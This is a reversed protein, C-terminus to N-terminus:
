KSTDPLKTTQGNNYAKLRADMIEQYGASLYEGKYKEYLADFEDASCKVLKAFYEQYLSLLTASYESEEEISVAFIPDSYAMGKEAVGKQGYYNDILQQTFDQPLGQPSIAKIADEITNGVKKSARVVCTMDINCNHNMMMENGTGELNIQQAIGNADYNFNVGEVGNEMTFLVDDQSMWEMYMWAAKLQDDTALSSFGVIMGFPNDARVAVSKTYVGDVTADANTVKVALEAGPNNEYFSNLWTVNSSMYGTFQLLKGNVFDTEAQSGATSELDLDFETSYWGNHYQENYLKLMRYTPEWAFCPTGLSSHMAWEEENAPFDRYAFNPIYAQSPLSFNIPAIDTFNGAVIKAVADDWETNNTPVYDYGVQKLWDLRVFTVYTYPTNYYPRESLVFYTDGNVDTYGLQNNDVMKQYYTPAVQKFQELDIVKMAGDNAWQTVKPYDYEMMITPTEKAAILMSYKTMVDGRPIAVYKVTINYKDGFESQVWKTWYNDDVAPYGAKGRDYVPVTITVNDKFASWGDIGAAPTEEKTDAAPTSTAKTETEKKEEKKNDSVAPTNDDASSKSCGSLAGLAMVVTVTLALVKNLTKRKM